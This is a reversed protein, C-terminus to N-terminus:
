FGFIACDLFVGTLNTASAVESLTVNGAIILRISKNVADYWPFYGAGAATNVVQVAIITSGFGFTGPTVSYGTGQPYSADATIRAYKIGASSYVGALDPAFTAPVVVTLAM